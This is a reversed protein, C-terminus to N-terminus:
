VFLFLFFLVVLAIAAICFLTFATEIADRRERTGAHLLSARLLTLLAMMSPFGVFASVYWGAFMTNLGSTVSREIGLASLIWAFSEFTVEGV